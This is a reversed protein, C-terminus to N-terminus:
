AVFHNQKPYTLQISMKGMEVEKFHKWSGAKLMPPYCASDCSKNAMQLKTTECGCIVCSGSEYCEPKMRQIRFEIQERIHRRLLWKYRSYYLKYRFNGQVYFWVDVLPKRGKLVLLIKAKMSMLM